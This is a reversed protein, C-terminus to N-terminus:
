TDPRFIVYKLRWKTALSVSVVYLEYNALTLHASVQWTDRNRHFILLNLEGRRIKVGAQRIAFPDSVKNLDIVNLAISIFAEELQLTLHPEDGLVM